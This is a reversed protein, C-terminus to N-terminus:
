ASGGCDSPRVLSAMKGARVVSAREQRLTETNARGGVEGSTGWSLTVKELTRVWRGQGRCVCVKM